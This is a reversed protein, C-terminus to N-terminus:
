SRPRRPCRTQRARTARGRSSTALRTTSSWSTPPACPRTSRTPPTSPPSTSRSVLFRAKHDAKTFGKDEPKKEPEPVATAPPPVFSRDSEKGPMFDEYCPDGNSASEHSRKPRDSSTIKDQTNVQKSIDEDDSSSDYSDYSSSSCSGSSSDSSCSSTPNSREPASDKQM